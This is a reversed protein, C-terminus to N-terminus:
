RLVAIRVGEGAALQVDEVAAGEVVHVVAVAVVARLQSPKHLLVREPHIRCTACLIREESVELICIADINIFVAFRSRHKM